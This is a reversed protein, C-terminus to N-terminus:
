VARDEVRHERLPLVDERHLSNDPLHQQSLVVLFV